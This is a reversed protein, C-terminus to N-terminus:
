ERKTMEKPLNKANTFKEIIVEPDNPDIETKVTQKRRSRLPKIDSYEEQTDSDITNPRAESINTRIRTWTKNNSNILFSEWTNDKIYFRSSIVGQSSKVEIPYKSGAKVDGSDDALVCDGFMMALAIEGKGVPASSKEFKGINVLANFAMSIEEPTARVQKAVINQIDSISKIGITDINGIFEMFKRKKRTTIIDALIKVSSAMNKGVLELFHDTTLPPTLGDVAKSSSITNKIQEIYNFGEEAGGDPVLTALTDGLKTLETEVKEEPIGLLKGILKGKNKFEQWSSINQLKSSFNNDTAESIHHKNFLSITKVLNEKFINVKNNSEDSFTTWGTKNASNM